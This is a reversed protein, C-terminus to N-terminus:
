RHAADVSQLLAPERQRDSAGSGPRPTKRGQDDVGPEFLHKAAFEAAADHTRKDAYKARHRNQKRAPLRSGPSPLHYFRRLTRRQLFGSCGPYWRASTSPPRDLSWGARLQLPEMIKCSMSKARCRNQVVDIKCSM